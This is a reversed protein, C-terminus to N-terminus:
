RGASASWTPSAPFAASSANWRGLKAGIAPREAFLRQQRACGQARHRRVAPNRRDALPAFDAAVRRRPLDASQMRNIVEQRAALYDFGYEFQTNIYSLGFLSKSRMYKLGPMGSLAVELPITVLREMEEASRGPYQAMVEVIAPAPDPYAEVNVHSFAYVGAAGLAITLLMVILPNNVSWRILHSIMPDCRRATQRGPCQGGTAPASEGPARSGRSRCDSRRRAIRRFGQERQEDDLHSRVYVVDAHRRGGGGQPVRIAFGRSRAPRLRLQRGRRRGPGQGSDRRHRARELHSHTASVFQGTPLVGNPNGISGILLAMHENPDIIDGIRDITAELVGLDPNAPLRIEAKIPLGVRRLYMLDEEYAHLWVAMVSLDAVKFLEDNTDVIDGMTINKEVITGDIPAVVDVRAWNTDTRKEGSGSQNVM